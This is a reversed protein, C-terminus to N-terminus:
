NLGRAATQRVTPSPDSVAIRELATQASDGGLRTGGLARAVKERETTELGGFGNMLAAVAGARDITAL